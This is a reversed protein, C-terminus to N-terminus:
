GNAPTKKLFRLVTSAVVKIRKARRLWAVLDSLTGGAARLKVLESRHKVLRSKGWTTRRRQVERAVRVKELEDAADFKRQEAIM